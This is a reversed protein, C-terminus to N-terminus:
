GSQAVDRSHNEMELSLPLANKKIELVKQLKKWKKTYKEKLVGIKAWEGGLIRSIFAFYLCGWKQLCVGFCSRGYNIFM